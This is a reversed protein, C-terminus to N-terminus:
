PSGPVTFTRPPDFTDRRFPFDEISFLSPTQKLVDLFFGVVGKPSFSKCQLYNTDWIAISWKESPASTHWCLYNSNETTGFPFLGHPEPYIPYSVKFGEAKYNRLNELANDLNNILSYNPDESFPSDIFIFNCIKGCGYLSVFDKYDSPFKMRLLSEVADWDGSAGHPHTPPPLIKTLAKLTKDM